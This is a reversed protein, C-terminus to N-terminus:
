DAPDVPPVTADPVPLMMADVNRENDVFAVDGLVQDFDIADGVANIGVPSRAITGRRLELTSHDLQVGVLASRDIVFGELHVFADLYAGAGIGAAYDRCLDAACDRELSDYIAIETGTVRTGAEFAALSVERNRELRVRTLTVTSASNVIIGKGSSPLMGTGRTDAVLVDTATVHSGQGIFVGAGGNRELAVREVMATSAQIELGRGFDYLIDDRGATDAVALDTITALDAQDVFVGLQLAHEIRIRHIAATAGVRVEIGRSALEEPPRGTEERPDHIYLDDADFRVGDGRIVIETGYAGSTEVRAVTARGGEQVQLSRGGNDLIRADTLTLEAPGMTGAVIVGTGGNEAVLVHALTMEADTQIAIGRDDNGRVYLGDADVTASEALLGTEVHDEIRVQHFSAEAEPGVQIGSAGNDRVISHTLELVPTGLLILIGVIANDEVVLGDGEIRGAASATLGDGFDDISRQTGAVLVDSATLLSGAGLVAIGESHSNEVVSRELTLVGGDELDIGRGATGDPHTQTNRIAIERALVHAGGYVGLGLTVVGDIVVGELTADITAGDFRIGQRRMARVTVGSIAVHGASVEVVGYGLAAVSSTLTTEASCAGAIQVDRRVTIVEDYTGKGLAVIQGPTAAAVATAISRYPDAQTGTGAPGAGGARVYLTGAPLGGAWEGEPCAAGIPGCAARGPYLMENPACTPRPEPFPECVRTGAIGDIERWGARCPAFTVTAPPAPPAPPEPVVDHAGADATAGDGAGADAAAGDDDGCGVAALALAAVLLARTM